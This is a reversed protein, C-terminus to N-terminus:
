KSLLIHVILAIALIGVSLSTWLLARSLRWSELELKTLREEVSPPRLSWTSTTPCQIDCPKECNDCQYFSTGEDSRLVLCRANCCNSKIM